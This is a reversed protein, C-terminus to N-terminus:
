PRPASPLRTCGLNKRFREITFPSRYRFGAIFTCRAFADGLARIGVDDLEISSGVGSHFYHPLDNLFNTKGRGIGAKFDVNDIFDM